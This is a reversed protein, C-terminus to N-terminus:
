SILLLENTLMKGLLEHGYTSPHTDTGGKSYIQLLSKPTTNIKGWIDITKIKWQAALKDFAAKGNDYAFASGLVLVMRANPNLAYMKDMLFLLAGLFTTRHSEFSSGDLYKWQGKDFMDWDATSFNTNNPVVDFVWLDANANDSTFINEWTRWYDNYSGGPYYTIPSSEITIRNEALYEAKSMSTSGYTTATTPTAMHIAQGPASTQVLNFGLKTAAEVVYSKTANQGFPVSTGLWVIKKGLWQNTQDVYSAPVKLNPISFKDTYNYGRIDHYQNSHSVTIAIYYVGKGVPVDKRISANAGDTQFSSIWTKNQTVFAGGYVGVPYNALLFSDYDGIPYYLTDYTALEQFTGYSTYFKGLLLETNDATLTILDSTEERIPTAGVISALDVSLNKFKYTNSNYIGSFIRYRDGTNVSIGIYAAGAPVVKRVKNDPDATSFSSIWSMDQRVFAGGNVGVKYVTLDFSEYYGVPFYITDYSANTQWTGNSNYIKGVQLITNTASPTISDIVEKASLINADILSTPKIYAEAKQARAIETNLADNVAKVQQVVNSSLPYKYVNIVKDDKFNIYMKTAGTPVRVYQDYYTGADDTGRCYKAIIKDTADSFIIGYVGSGNLTGVWRVLAGEVLTTDLAWSYGNWTHPSSTNNAFDMYAGSNKTFTMLTEIALMKIVDDTLNYYSVGAIGVNTLATKGTIADKASQALMDLTVQGSGNKDVKSNVVVNTANLDVQNAKSTLQTVYNSYQEILPKAQTFYDVLAPGELVVTELLTLDNTSLEESLSIDETVTYNFTFSSLRQNNSDFLQVAANVKGTLSVEPKGLDFTIENDGSKIGDVYYSKNDPRRSVFRYTLGDIVAPSGNDFLTVVFVLDDYQTVIPERITTKQKFDASMLFPQLM